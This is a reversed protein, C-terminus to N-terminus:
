VTNNYTTHYPANHDGMLNALVQILLKEDITETYYYILLSGDSM